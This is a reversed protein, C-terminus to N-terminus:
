ITCALAGAKGIGAGPLGSAGQFSPPPTFTVAPNAPIPTPPQTFNPVYGFQGAAFNQTGGQNTLNIVGDTVSVYLGPAM